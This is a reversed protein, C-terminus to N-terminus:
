NNITKFYIVKFLNYFNYISLLLNFNFKIVKVTLSNKYKFDPSSNINYAIKM